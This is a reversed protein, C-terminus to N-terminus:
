GDSAGGALRSPSRGAQAVATRLVRTAEDLEARTADLERQVTAIDM